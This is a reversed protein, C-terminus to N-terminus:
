MPHVRLELIFSFFRYKVNILLFRRTNTKPICTIRINSTEKEFMNCAELQTELFSEYIPTTFMLNKEPSPSRLRRSNCAFSDGPINNTWYIWCNSSRKRPWLLKSSPWMHAVLRRLYKREKGRLCYGSGGFYSLQAVHHFGPWVISTTFSKLKTTLFKFSRYHLSQFWNKKKIFLKPLFFKSSLINSRWDFWNPFLYDKIFCM